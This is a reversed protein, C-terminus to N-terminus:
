CVMICCVVGVRLMGYYLFFDDNDRAGYSVLLEEGVAIDRTASLQLEWDGTMAKSPGVIDWTVNDGPVIVVKTTSKATPQENPTLHTHQPAAKSGSEGTMEKSTKGTTEGTTEEGAAEEGTTEGVTEKGARTEKRTASETTTTHVLTYQDGAHNLMDVIPVLMRVAVRGDPGANGFTRSHVVQM